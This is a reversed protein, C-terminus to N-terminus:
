TCRHAGGGGGGGGSVDAMCGGRCLVARCPVARYLVRSSLLRLSVSFHRKADNGTDILTCMQCFTLFAAESCGEQSRQDQFLTSNEPIRPIRYFEM